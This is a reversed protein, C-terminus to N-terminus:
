RLREVSLDVTPLDLSYTENGKISAHANIYKQDRNFDVRVICWDGVTKIVTFYIEDVNYYQQFKM